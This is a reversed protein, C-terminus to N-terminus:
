RFWKRSLKVQTDQSDLPIVIFMSEDDIAMPQERQNRALWGGDNTQRVLLMAAQPAAIHVDLRDPGHWHWDIEPPALAQELGIISRQCLPQPDAVAQWTFQSPQSDFRTRRLRHTVGLERLVQDVDPQNNRLRDHRSLWTRLQTWEFPAISQTANLSRTDSLLGLKGLRWAQQYRAQDIEFSQRAQVFRDGLLDAQNQNVWVFPISSTLRPAQTAASNSFQSLTERPATPAPLFSTWCSACLTMEILTILAISPLHHTWQLQQTSVVLFSLMPLLCAIALSVAIARTNPPGLWRDPAVQSLWADLSYGAGAALWLSAAMVLGVLSLIAISLRFQRTSQRLNEASMRDFQLAAILSAAAVFWVTWKAPYRFMSYGPLCVNLLWALSGVHDAPLHQALSTLGVSSLIERMLWLISYNGFSALLAFSAVVILLRTRASRQLGALLFLLCPWCGFYLSPIWM